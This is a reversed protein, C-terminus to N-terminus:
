LKLYNMQMAGFVLILSYILEFLSLMGSLAIAIKKDKHSHSIFIDSNIQPFWNNQLMSGDLSGDNLIFNNLTKQVEIKKNNYLQKGRNYYKIFYENNNDWNLELNFGRYM